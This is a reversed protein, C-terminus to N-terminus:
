KMLSLSSKFPLRDLAEEIQKLENQMGQFLDRAKTEMRSSLDHYYNIGSMLNDRFKQLQQEKKQALDEGISLSENVLYQLYMKLENVFLNPRALKNLINRRGYIHDVMESLTFIGSFYALNPGPCITVATLKHSIPADNKLLASAGLGECLCDKEMVKEIEDQLLVADQISAQLQEIKKKQFERSATCIPKETFETNFSLFKKYCPSGPRNKEIRLKRQQESSSPRFNNFPVGLPSANSLYYDVKADNCLSAIKSVQKTDVKDPDILVAFAKRQQLRLANM